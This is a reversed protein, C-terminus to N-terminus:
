PIIGLQRMKANLKKEREYKLTRAKYWNQLQKYLLHPYKYTDFKDVFSVLNKHLQVSGYSRTTIEMPDGDFVCINQQYTYIRFPEPIKGLKRKLYNSIPCKLAHLPQGRISMDSLVKMIKTHSKGLEDLATQINHVLVKGTTIKLEEDLNIVKTTTM